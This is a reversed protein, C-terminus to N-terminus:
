GIQWSFSLELIQNSFNHPFKKLEGFRLWFDHFKVWFILSKKSQVIALIQRFKNANKKGLGSTRNQCMGGPVLVHLEYNTSAKRLM